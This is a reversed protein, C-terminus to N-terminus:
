HKWVRMELCACCEGQLGLEADVAVLAERLEGLRPLLLGAKERRLAELSSNFGDVARRAAAALRAMERRKRDPTM